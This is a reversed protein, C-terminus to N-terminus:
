VWATLAVEYRPVSLSVNQLYILMVERKYEGLEAIVACYLSMFIEGRELASVNVAALILCSASDKGM